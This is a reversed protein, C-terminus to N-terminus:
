VENGSELYEIAKHLVVTDDNLFGIGVNCKHCLLGRVLGTAHDHDIELVQKGPLNGCIACVGDQQALLQDYDENTIGYTYKRFREKDQDPHNKRWRHSTKYAKGPNAKYWKRQYENCQERHTERYKRQVERRATKKEEPTKMKLVGVIDVILVYM